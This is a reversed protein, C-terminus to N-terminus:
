KEKEVKGLDDWVAEINYGNPDTVYAAYYGPHYHERYGPAGNDQAGAKLAAAHFSDVQEKSQATFALCSFSSNEPVDGVKIWFDRKGETDEIAFAAGDEDSLILSYGLPALAKTYFAKSEELDKVFLSIHNLM